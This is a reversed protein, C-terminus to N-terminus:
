EDPNEGKGCYLVHLGRRHYNIYGRVTLHQGTSLNAVDLEKIHSGVVTLLVRSTPAKNQRMVICATKGHKKHKQQDLVGLVIGTIQCVNSDPKETPQYRTVQLFAGRENFCLYGDCQLRAGVLKKSIPSIAIPHEFTVLHEQDELTGIVSVLSM